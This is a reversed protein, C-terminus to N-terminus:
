GKSAARAKPEPASKAASAPALAKEVEEVTLGVERARRFAAYLLPRMTEPVSGTHNAAACLVVDVLDEPRSRAIPPPPPPPPHPPEILGLSELTEGAHSAAHAALERDKPLLLRTLKRLADASPVARGGEWRAATRHSWGLAPGFESQSMGLTLRAKALVHRLSMASPNAM